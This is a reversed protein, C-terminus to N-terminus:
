NEEQLEKRHGTPISNLDILVPDVLLLKQVFLTDISSLDSLKLFLQYVLM